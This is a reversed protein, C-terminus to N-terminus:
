DSVFSDVLRLLNYDFGCASLKAQLLDHVICDFANSLDVLLASSSGGSDLVEKRKGFM